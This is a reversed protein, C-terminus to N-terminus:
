SRWANASIACTWWPPAPRGALLVVAAAEPAQCPLLRNFRGGRCAQAFGPAARIARISDTSSALFEFVVDMPKWRGEELVECWSHDSGVLGLLYGRRARATLGAQRLRDAFLRSIVVCDAMGLDWARQHLMRLEETVSQYIVDGALLRALMEEHILNATASRVVGAAGTVRVAVQYGPPEVRGAALRGATRDLYEQSLPEIGPAALDAPRVAPLGAAPGADGAASEPARVRVLWQRPAYWAEPEEAAFRLLFRLALDPISRGNAGGFLALNIVDVYDYLPGRAPDAECPLVDAALGAVLEPEVGLIRGAAATDIVYRAFEGPMRAFRSPAGRQGAAAQVANM